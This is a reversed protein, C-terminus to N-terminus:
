TPEEVSPSRMILFGLALNVVAALLARTFSPVEAKEASAGAIVMVDVPNGHIAGFTILVSAAILVVPKLTDNLYQDRVSYFRGLAQDIKPLVFQVGLPAAGILLAILFAEIDTLGGSFGGADFSDGKGRIFFWLAAPVSVFLPQLMPELHTVKLRTRLAERAEDFFLSFAAGAVLLVFSVIIQGHLQFDLSCVALTALLPLVRHRARAQLDPWFEPRQWFPVNASPPAPPQACATM